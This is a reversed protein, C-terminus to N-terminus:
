IPPYDDGATPAASAACPVEYLYVVGSDACPEGHGNGILLGIPTEGVDLRASSHM